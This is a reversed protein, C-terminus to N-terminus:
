EEQDRATYDYHLEGTLVQKMALSVIKGEFAELEEDGLFNIQRARKMVARALLYRNGAFDVIESVPLM